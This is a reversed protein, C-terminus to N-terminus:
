HSQFEPPSADEALPPEFPGPPALDRAHKGPEFIPPTQVTGDRAKGESILPSPATEGKDPQVAPINGPMGPEINSFDVLVSGVNFDAMMAHDEHQLQHCHFVYRGKFTRFKIFLEVEQGPLLQFTDKKFQDQPPIPFLKYRQAHSNEM